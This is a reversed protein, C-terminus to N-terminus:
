IPTYRTANTRGGFFADRASLPSYAPHELLFDKLAQNNRKLVRYQCEWMEIVQVNYCM